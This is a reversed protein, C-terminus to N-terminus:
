PKPNPNLNPNLNTARKCCVEERIAAVMPSEASALDASIPRAHPSPLSELLEQMEGVLQVLTEHLNETDPDEVQFVAWPKPRSPQLPQVDDTSSLTCPSEAAYTQERREELSSRLLGAAFEKELTAAIQSGVAADASCDLMRDLQVTKAKLDRIRRRQEVEDAGAAQASWVCTL